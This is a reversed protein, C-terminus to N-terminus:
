IENCGYIANKLLIWINNIETYPIRVLSPRGDIGTCYKTKINDRYKVENLYKEGGFFDNYSLFHQEGDYEVCLNYKPLYFDFPLPRINRCDDFKHEHIFEINHKKLFCLILNEGTSAKCLRCGGGKLHAKPTQEFEGHRPCIIKVKTLNNIYSVKSYCYKDGHVDKAKETFEDTTRTNNKVCSIKGCAWCGHGKLHDKPTQEFEGHEPCIIKVKKFVHYYEINDYNYKNNHIISAKGIFEEKTKRRGM